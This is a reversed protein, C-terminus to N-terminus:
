EVRVATSSRTAAASRTIPATSTLPERAGFSTVASISRVMRGPETSTSTAMSWPPQKSVDCGVVCASGVNTTSPM